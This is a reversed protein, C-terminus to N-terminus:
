AIVMEQNSVEMAEGSEKTSESDSSTEKVEEKKAVVESAEKKAEAAKDKSNEKNPNYGVRTPISPQFGGIFNAFRGYPDAKKEDSGHAQAASALKNLIDREQMQLRQTVSPLRTLSMPIRNVEHKMDNLIEELQVLVRKLVDNAPKNGNSSQTSLHYHSEALTDLENYRANLALVSGTAGTMPDILVNQSGNNMDLKLFAARRLQEEIILAQELLKFRRALFKNKIELFNGRDKMDRNFPESIIAFRPDQQIDQWRSYGHTMVGALLWYDHRRHWTSYEGGPQVARQENQWLTHLETFGGDAINFMFKFASLKEPKDAKRYRIKSSNKLATLSNFQDMSSSNEKNEEKRTTAPADEGIAKATTVDGISGLMETISTENATDMKEADTDQKEEKSAKVAQDRQYEPNHEPMSWVNNITEYEQIKKRILTMTGIRTLIQQRSMGERPVGDAFTPSNNLDGGPECLHRMFM